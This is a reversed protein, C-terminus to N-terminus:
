TGDVSTGEFEWTIVTTEGQPLSQDDEALVAICLPTGVPTASAQPATVAAAATGAAGMAGTYAETGGSIDGENCAVPQVGSYVTYTFFDTLAANSNTVTPISILADQTGDVRLALPAYNTDGPAVEGPDLAFTLVAGPAADHEAFGETDGDVIAANGELEFSGTTFDGSAFVDDSWAALTVAAGLGLVVGGALIAKRKRKRDQQRQLDASLPTSADM